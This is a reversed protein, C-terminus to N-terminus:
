IKTARRLSFGILALAFIALMTPAPVSRKVLMTSQASDGNATYSNSYNYNDYINVVDNNYLDFLAGTWELMHVNSLGDTGLFWGVSSNHEIATGEYKTTNKGMIDFLETFVSGNVGQGDKAYLQGIGYENRNEYDAGLGLFANSWMTFVQDKSALSWGQYEGGQGLQSAVYNYSKGNNIGFDMWELGTSTDIFSNNNTDTIVVAQVTVSLLLASSALGINLCKFIM